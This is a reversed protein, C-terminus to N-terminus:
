TGSPLHPAHMLLYRLLTIYATAMAVYAFTAICMQLSSLPKLGADIARSRLNALIALGGFIVLITQELSFGINAILAGVIMLGFRAHRGMLRQLVSRLAVGGDLPEVPLLNFLNLGVTVIGLVALLVPTEFGLFAPLVCALALPASFGPGMLAAFVAQGQTEFALRPLAIAGLFPLFVIRGWPQGMLRYAVLHGLEHVLLAFVLLLAAIWGLIIAFAAVSVLGTAVAVAASILQYPRNDATGREAMGRIRYIGGWLDARAMIQALLPRPGWHYTVSLRTAPGEDILSFDQRLLENNHSRGELGERILILRSDEQREAARFLANSVRAVGNHQTTTYTKRYIHLDPDVLDSRIVTDGWNVTKGDSVDILAFVTQRSAAIVLSAHPRVPRRFGLLAILLLTIPIEPGITSWISFM